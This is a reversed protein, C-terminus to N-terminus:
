RADRRRQQTQASWNSYYKRRRECTHKTTEDDFYCAYVDDWWLEKGCFKCKRMKGYQTKNPQPRAM